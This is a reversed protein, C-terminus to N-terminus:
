SLVLIISRSPRLDSWSKAIRSTSLPHVRPGWRVLPTANLVGVVGQGTNLRILVPVRGCHVEGGVSIVDKM